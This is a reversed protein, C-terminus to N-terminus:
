PSALNAGIVKTMPGPVPLSLYSLFSSCQRAPFHGKAKRDNHSRLMFALFHLTALLGPGMLGYPNAGRRGDPPPASLSRTTVKASLAPDWNPTPSDGLSDGRKANGTSIGRRDLVTAFELHLGWDPPAKESLQLSTM